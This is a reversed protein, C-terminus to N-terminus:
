PVQGPYKKKFKARARDVRVKFGVIGAIFGIPITWASWWLAANGACPTTFNLGIVCTLGSFPMMGFAVAPVLAFALFFAMTSLYGVFLGVWFVPSWTGFSRSNLLILIHKTRGQDCLAGLPRQRINRAAAFAADRKGCLGPGLFIPLHEQGLKGTFAVEIWVGIGGHSFHNGVPQVVLM